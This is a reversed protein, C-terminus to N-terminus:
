NDNLRDRQAALAALSRGIQAGAEVDSRFHIGAYIRSLSGEEGLYRLRAADQPFFYGMLEAPATWLAGASAPYSPSSPEAILPKIAPDAQDPRIRWYTYKGDNVAISTDLFTAGMLVLVRAACPTSLRDRIILDYATQWYFQVSQAAWFTAIARQSPTPNSSIRKVEELETTFQPSGFAPPPPPRLQSGSTLLRPKWTGATMDAPDKGTWLGPGTPIAGPWQADSGDTAARALAKQAM